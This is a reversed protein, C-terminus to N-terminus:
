DTTDKLLTEYIKTGRQIHYQRFLKAKKDFTNVDMKCAGERKIYIKHSIFNHTVNFLEMLLVSVVIMDFKIIKIDYCPLCAPPEFRHATGLTAKIYM